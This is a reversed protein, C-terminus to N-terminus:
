KKKLFEGLHRSDYLHDSSKIIVKAELLCNFCSDINM